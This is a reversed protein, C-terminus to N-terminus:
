LDHASIWPKLTHADQSYIPDPLSMEATSIETVTTPVSHDHAAQVFLREPLVTVGANDEEGQPYDPHRSLADARANEKGKVHHIEYNYESLELVERAIRCNIHQPSKWYQLNKHDSYIQVKPATGALLWRWHHLAHVIAYLELGYINYNQEAENLTALFYAMPHLKGDNQKQSLVAGITYGSTDVELVFPHDQNPHALVPESTVLNKLTQFAKDKYEMWRWEADKRTLVNLPQAHKSFGKIFICYFNCFGLFSHVDKVKTPTPWDKIGSIQCPGHTDGGKWPNGGPLGNGTCPFSM